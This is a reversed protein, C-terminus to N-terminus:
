EGHFSNYKPNSKQSISFSNRYLAAVGGGRGKLRPEHTYYYDQPVSENLAIYDDPKLWTETLCFMDIKHDTIMDNVFLAKNSLSRINLLGLRLLQNDTNHEHKTLKVNVLNGKLPKRKIKHKSIRPVSM